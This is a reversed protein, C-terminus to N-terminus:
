KIPSIKPIMLKLILWALIYMTSAILFIPMYSGTFKLILGVFSAALAGGIAGTFGSLGAMTGVAQKPYIDSIVTFINSAWGQHAATAMGIIIVVLWINQVQTAFVLPLVLMACIFIATKRSFDISRGKKIFNSSLFGGFVGGISAMTYIIILPLISQKLDINQTKRLFDPAWFLFFWWVWDTLFRSLCIAYTQKYSFLSKWTVNSVSKVDELNNDSLIYALESPSVRKHKEPPQYLCLWVIIWIFGLLGTIIFAWKWGLNITIEAVIIPAVIAGINSGSNFIGTALARQKKPFWEAVTKVAAPFNAAEGIGLIARAFGFGMVTSVAAHILAGFSWVTVATAYGLRTGFKDLLKGSLLLGIAYAIQFATVIYGYDADDLHIDKEIFPKLLGIVQRDIYNITTAFFLLVVITWRVKSQGVIM